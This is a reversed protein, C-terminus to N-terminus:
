SAMKGYKMGSITVSEHKDGKTVDITEDHNDIWLNELKKFLGPQAKSLFRKALAKTEEKSPLEGAVLRQDM